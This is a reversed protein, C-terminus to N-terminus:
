RLDDGPRLPNEGFLEAAATLRAQPHDQLMAFLRDLMEVDRPGTVLHHSLIGLPEGPRTRVLRALAADVEDAARVTRGARWDVLDLHCDIRRLPRAAPASAFASWGIFGAAPLSGILDAAIRNWPPVLVPVFRGPFHDALRDRQTALHCLLRDPAARGGLEIKRGQPLAHDEHAIGHQLVTVAACALLEQRVEVTLWAPVVAVALPLRRGSALRLLATLRADPRGADDDRWWFTVPAPAADLARRLEDVPM